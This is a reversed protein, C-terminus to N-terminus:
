TEDLPVYKPPNQELKGVVRLEVVYSEFIAHNPMELEQLTKVGPKGYLTIRTFNDNTAPLWLHTTYYGNYDQIRPQPPTKKFMRKWMKKYM